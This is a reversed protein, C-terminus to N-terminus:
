APSWPGAIALWVLAIDILIGLLLTPAFWVVLMGLSALSSAVLLGQWWAAPVLIGATALAALAFLVFTVVVLLRGVAVFAGPGSGTRTAIWSARLDFPWDPAAKGTAPKGGESRAPRPFLFMLHVWGHGFLIAALVWRGVGPNTELLWLTVAGVVVAVIALPGLERIIRAM